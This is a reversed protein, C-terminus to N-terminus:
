PSWRWVMAAVFSAVIIQIRRKRSRHQQRQEVHKHHIAQAVAPDNPDASASGDKKHVVPIEGTDPVQRDGRDERTSSPQAM